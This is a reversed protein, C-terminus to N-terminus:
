PVGSKELEVKKRLESAGFVTNSSAISELLVKMSRWVVYAALNSCVDWFYISFSFVMFWVSSAIRRPLNIKGFEEYHPESWRPRHLRFIIVDGSHIEAVSDLVSKILFTNQVTCRFTVVVVTRPYSGM